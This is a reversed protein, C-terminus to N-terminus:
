QFRSQLETELYTRTESPLREWDEESIVELGKDDLNLAGLEGIIEDAGDPTLSELDFNTLVTQQVDHQARFVVSRMATQASAVSLGTAVVAVVLVTASVKRSPVFFLGIVTALLGVLGVAIWAFIGTVVTGGAGFLSSAGNALQMGHLPLIVMFVLILAALALCIIGTWSHWTFRWPAKAHHARANLGPDVPDFPGGQTPQTQPDAFSDRQVSDPYPGFFGSSGQDPPPVKNSFM